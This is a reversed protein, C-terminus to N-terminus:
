EKPEPSSVSDLGPDPACRACYVACRMAHWHAQMGWRQVPIWAVRRHLPAGDREFKLLM